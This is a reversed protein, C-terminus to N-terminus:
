FHFDVPVLYWNKDGKDIGERMYTPHTSDNEMDFFYSDPGWTASITDWLKKLPYTDMSLRFNPYMGEKTMDISDLMAPLDIKRCQEVVEGLSQLYYNQATDLYEQFRNDSQHAVDATYDDNYPDDSTSWRGGGTVFWDFWADSPYDESGLHSELNSKVTRFAEDVSDAQTAIYQICHM